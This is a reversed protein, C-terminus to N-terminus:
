RRSPSVKTDSATSGAQCPHSRTRSRTLVAVPDCASNLRLAPTSIELHRTPDIRRAPSCGVLWYEGAASVSLIM